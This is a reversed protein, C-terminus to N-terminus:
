RRRFYPMCFTNGCHVVKLQYNTDDFYSILGLGDAGITISSYRGVDGSADLVFTTAVSCVINACHAVRLDGTDNNYYSILGLGDIGISASNGLGMDATSDLTAISATGCISNICHAIKLYGYTYDYYSILGLGDAGLTISSYRGVDGTSDLTALAATNCATDNCHAVKLNSLAWDWYSILGLGDVGITISTHMGTLTASDLTNIDDAISCAIDYCHAVKLDADAEDFYSILGRGDTGITISSYLGVDGIADLTTLDADTCAINTCHAVKLNTNTSDYYSILGLGDASITISPYWGVDGTTDLLTITVNECRIDECHAVKLDGGDNVGTYSVLALGDSGITISAMYGTGMTSDLTKIIFTPLGTFGTIFTPDVSLTDASLELGDGALYTTDNDMNDSFGAPVGSIGGWPASSAYLAYPSATLEQRGLITYGSDGSCLVEVELWRADGNFIGTGFDLQTAFLGNSVMLGLKDVYPGIQAGGSAADYLYFYFDCLGNFPQGDRVLRGQYTFATGLPTAGPAASGGSTLFLMSFICIILLVPKTKM